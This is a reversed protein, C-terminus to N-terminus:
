YSHVYDMLEELFRIEGRLLNKERETLNATNLFDKNIKIREKIKTKM